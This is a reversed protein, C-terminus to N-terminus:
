VVMVACLERWSRVTVVEGCVMSFVNCEVRCARSVHVFAAPMPPVGGSWDKYRGRARAVAPRFPPPGLSSLAGDM